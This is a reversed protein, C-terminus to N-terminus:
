SKNGLQWYIRRDDNRMEADITWSDAAEEAADHGNAEAYENAVRALIAQAPIRVARDESKLSATFLELIRANGDFGRIDLWDWFLASASLEARASSAAPLMTEPKGQEIAQVFDRYLRERIRDETM